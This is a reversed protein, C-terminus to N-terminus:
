LGIRVMFGIPDM